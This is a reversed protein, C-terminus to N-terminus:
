DDFVRLEDLARRQLEAALKEVQEVRRAKRRGVSREAIRREPLDGVLSILRSHNLERRLQDISLQALKYRIFLVVKVFCCILHHSIAARPRPRPKNNFVGPLECSLAPRRWGFIIKM